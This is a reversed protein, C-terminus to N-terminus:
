DLVGDADGDRFVVGNIVLGPLQSNNGFDWESGWNSFLATSNVIQGASTVSQLDAFPAGNTGPPNTVGMNSNNTGLADTLGFDNIFYNDTYNANDNVGVLAGDDSIGLVLNSMFSSTLATGLNTGGILGGIFQDDAILEGAAFTSTLDLHYSIGVLGGTYIGSTIVTSTSFSTQIASTGTDITPDDFNVSGVLGGTYDTGVVAGTAYSGTINSSNRTLGVLGGTFFDGVVDGSANSNSISVTNESHGVLGGAYLTSTVVGSANSNSISVNDEAAGVLGGTFLDGTVDSSSSSNSLTVANKASGVLGGTSDNGLVIGSVSSGSITVSSEAIGVLGGTITDGTIQTLAGDLVLNSIEIGSPTGSGDVYGFLGIFGGSTETDSSTRDIFLNSIRNGNGEFNATFRSSDDGVPLWGNNSGDGDYDFFTDSADMVGDGNTDFDLDAVLEYGNCGNSPCGSDQVNGNNEIRTTGALDNHMWDLQELTSIEILGNNDVDIDNIDSVGDGDADSGSSGGGSGSNDNGNGDSNDSCASLLCIMLVPIFQALKIVLM